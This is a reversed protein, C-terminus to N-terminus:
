GLLEAVVDDVDGAVTLRALVQRLDRGVEPDTLGAQGVPRLGGVDCVPDRGPGRHGLVGLQALGALPDTRQLLPVLDQTAGGGM